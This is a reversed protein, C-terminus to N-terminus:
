ALRVFKNPDYSVATYSSVEPGMDRYYYGAFPSVSESSGSPGQIDPSIRDEKQMKWGEQEAWRFFHSKDIDFSAEIHPDGIICIYYSINEAPPM